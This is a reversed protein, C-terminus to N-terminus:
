GRKQKFLGNVINAAEKIAINYRENQKELLEKVIKGALEPKTRSDIDVMDDSFWKVLNVYLLRNGKKVADKVKEGAIRPDESLQINNKSTSKSMKSDSLGPILDTYTVSPFNGLGLRKALKGALKIHGIEDIGLTVLVSHYGHDLPLLIDSSMLLASLAYPLSINKWYVSDLESKNLLTALRYTKKLTDINNSQLYINSKKLNVGSAALRALLDLTSAKIIAQKTHRVYSAELDAIPIYLRANYKNQYYAMQQFMCLTGIHPKGSPAFGSVLAAKGGKVKNLWKGFFEHGVILENNIFSEPEMNPSFNFKTLRFQKRLRVYDPAWRGKVEWGNFEM